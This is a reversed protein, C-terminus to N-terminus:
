GSCTKATSLIFIQRNGFRRWGRMKGYMNEVEAYYKQLLEQEFAAVKKAILKDLFM